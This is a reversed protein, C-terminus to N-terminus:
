EGRDFEISDFETPDLGVQPLSRAVRRPYRADDPPLDVVWSEIQFAGDLEDVAPRSIRTRIPRRLAASIRRVLAADTGEGRWGDAAPVARVTTAGRRFVLTPRRAAPSQAQVAAAPTTTAQAM